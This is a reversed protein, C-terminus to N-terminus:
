FSPRDESFFKEEEDDALSQPSQMSRGTGWVRSVHVHIISDSRPGEEARGRSEGAPVAKEAFFRPGEDKSSGKRRGNISPRGPAQPSREAEQDEDARRRKERVQRYNYQMREYLALVIQDRTTHDSWFGKQNHLKWVRVLGKLEKITIPATHVDKCNDPFLKYRIM